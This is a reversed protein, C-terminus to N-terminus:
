RRGAEEEVVLAVQNTGALSAQLEDIRFPKSLRPLDPAISETEAYGSIILLRATPHSRQIERALTTGDMGPMLHDTVLIQFELGNAVLLKAEEASSAEVVNFNLESLMVATSARVLDEDDVLLVTGHGRAPTQAQESPSRDIAADQSVPLWLEVNTGLGAQSSIRLDGGLQLALGHVMSLGLGTGRGVGKTSFFPEVARALTAEDMGTGTDAVSLRVYRGARIGRENGTHATECSASIRLTGGDPMADRANVSLNLLAMELQNPDAIAPPLETTVDVVVHIQPGITSAILSGIGRVLGPVDVAIPKLPQRRAFALLRQVLTKAREASQLAGAILRQEREGGLGKRALLDLAGVIPTLLNNFDHAVGGTLQGMAEMKQSQRLAEEARIQPTINRSSGILMTVRGDAGVVPVMSTDWHQPDGNLEFVERYQYVSRTEVVHRYTRLVQEALEPALIDDLRKGRVEDIKMGVGAEHAANIEEVVFAGDSKVGIVFLAEPTNEFYARYLADAQRRAAEAAELREQREKEVTVDRGSVYAQGDGPAASWSFWRWTGDSARLRAEFDGVPDAAASRISDQVLKLDDPHVYRDFRKNIAEAPDYGLLAGVAPNVAVMRWWRDIVVLLDRSLQWMRDREATREDVDHQLKQNLTLLEQQSRRLAAEALSQELASWTVEAVEEIVDIDEPKWRRPEKQHVYLAAVLHGGKVLSVTVGAEIQLAQFANQVEAPTLEDPELDHVVLTEGRRIAGYVAEGFVALDHTGNHNPVTGDTWNDSTTFFRESPDLSGYGVRSADLHQGLSNQAENIIAAADKLGRLRDRLEALFTQRKSQLISATTEACVCLAGPINGAEAIVPSYSFTFWARELRGSRRLDVPLDEFYSSSGSLAKVIIPEVTERVDPWVDFFPRGLAGPHLDGLIEVYADNYILTHDNGWVVFM